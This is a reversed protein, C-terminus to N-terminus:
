STLEAFVDELSGQAASASRVAIGAAVLAQITQEASAGADATANWVCRLTSTEGESATEIKECLALSEVKARAVEAAGRVVIVFAPSRRMRRLDEVTGEAVLRGKAIVVARSCTSEVESLIHTSLLVTHEKGLQRLM